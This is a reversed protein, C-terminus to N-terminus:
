YLHYFSVVLISVNLKQSFYYIRNEHPIQSQEEAFQEFIQRLYSEKIELLPVFDNIMKKSLDFNLLIQLKTQLAGPFSYSFFIM